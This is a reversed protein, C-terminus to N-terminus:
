VHISPKHATNRQPIQWHLLSIPTRGPWCCNSDGRDGAKVAQSDTKMAALRVSIAQGAHHTQEERQSRDCLQAAGPSDPKCLVPKPKRGILFFFSFFGWLCYFVRLSWTAPSPLLAPPSLIQLQATQSATGAATGAGAPDWCRCVLNAAGALAAPHPSCFVCLSSSLFWGPLSSPTHTSPPATCASWHGWCLWRPKCHGHELSADRACDASFRTEAGLGPVRCLPWHPYGAGLHSLIWCLSQMLTHLIM